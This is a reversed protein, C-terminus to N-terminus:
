PNNKQSTCSSGILREFSSYKTDTRWTVNNQLHMSRLCCDDGVLNEHFYIFSPM